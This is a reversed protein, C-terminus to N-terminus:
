VSQAPLHEPILYLVQLLRQEPRGPSTNPIRRQVSPNPWPMRQIRPDCYAGPSRHIQTARVPSASHRPNHLLHLLLYIQTLRQAAHLGMLQRLLLPMLFPSRGLDRFSNRALRPSVSIPRQLHLVASSLKPFLRRTIPKRSRRSTPLQPLSLPHPCIFPNDNGKVLLPRAARTSETLSKRCLSM